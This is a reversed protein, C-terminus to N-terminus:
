ERIAEAPILRLAKIAPYLAALLATVFVIVPLLYVFEPDLVPYIMTDFGIEKMVDSFATLDVGSESLRSVYWYGSLVGLVTGILALLTTELVILGFVKRKNMGIAMLMGIERSREFVAMLMTNLLGFALAVMIIIVFIYTFIGGAETWFLMEPAIEDWTRVEMDPFREQLLSLPTDLRNIDFTLVALEHFQDEMKLQNNLYDIPVFVMTEDYTNSFTEYIGKVVFAASTIDNEIDQFTLVLRSDMSVRLKDALTKGILIVNADEEEPYDGEIINKAFGTTKNESEPTIGIMEVGKTYTASAIMSHVRTRLTASKVGELQLIEPLLNEKGTITQAVEKQGIFDPHHVQIHSLENEIFNQFRGDLMGVALASVLIGALLGLFISFIVAMSRLKNRWINRWAIKILNRM